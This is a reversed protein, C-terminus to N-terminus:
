RVCESKSMLLTYSSLLSLQSGMLRGSEELDEPRRCLPPLTVCVPLSAPEATCQAATLPSPRRTPNWELAIDDM